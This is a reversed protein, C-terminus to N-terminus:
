KLRDALGEYMTSGGSIIVNKALSCRVDTDSNIISAYALDPMSKCTLGHMEPNFLLEPCGIRVSNPVKVVGHDPMTYTKDLESSKSEKEAEYDQAVYCLKEKMDKVIEFGSAGNL